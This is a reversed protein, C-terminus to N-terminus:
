RKLRYAKAWNAAQDHPLSFTAGKGPGYDQLRIGPIDKVFEKQHAPIEGYVDTGVSEKMASFLHSEFTSKDNTLYPLEISTNNSYKDYETSMGRDTESTIDLNDAKFKEISDPSRSSDAITVGWGSGPKGSKDSFQKGGTGGEGDGYQNGRFPHGSDEGNVISQAIEISRDIGNIQKDIDYIVVPDLTEGEVTKMAVLSVRTQKMEYISQLAMDVMSKRTNEEDLMHKAEMESYYRPNEDLQDKAIKSAVTGDATHEMETEIGLQLEIADYNSDPRTDTGVGIITMPGGYDNVTSSPGDNYEM